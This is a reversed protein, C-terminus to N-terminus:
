DDKLRSSLYASVALNLGLFGGYSGVITGAVLSVLEGQTLSQPPTANALVMLGMAAAVITYVVSFILMSNLTPTVWAGDRPRPVLRDFIWLAVLGRAIAAVLMVAIDFGSLDFQWVNWAVCALGAGVAAWYGLAILAVVDIAGAPYYYLALWREDTASFCLAACISIAAFRALAVGLVIGFVATPNM